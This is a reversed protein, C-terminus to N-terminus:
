MDWVWADLHSMQRRGTTPTSAYNGEGKRLEWSYIGCGSPCRQQMTWLCVWAQTVVKGATAFGVGPFPMTMWMLGSALWEPSRRQRMVPVPNQWEDHQSIGGGWTQIMGAGSRVRMVGGRVLHGSGGELAGNYATRNSCMGKWWSWRSMPLMLLWLWHGTWLDLVCSCWQPQTLSAWVFQGLSSSPFYLGPVTWHNWKVLFKRDSPPLIWLGRFGHVAQLIYDYRCVYMVTSLASNKRM